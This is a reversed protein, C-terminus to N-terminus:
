YNETHLLKALLLRICDWVVLFSFGLFLGLAGGFEALFSTFPYTYVEEKVTIHTSAYSMSIQMLNETGLYMMSKDGVTIAAYEMYTCPIKCGTRYLLQKQQSNSLQLFFDLYETIQDLGVCTNKTETVHDWPALCGVEKLVSKKVCERFNYGSDEECPADHRNMRKHSVVKIYQKEYLVTKEKQKPFKFLKEFLPITLPYSSIYFFKPDHVYVRYPLSFNLLLDISGDSIFASKITHCKGFPWVLIDTSLTGVDEYEKAKHIIESANYFIRQFCEEIDIANEAYECLKKLSSATTDNPSYIPRMKTSYFVEVCITVSPSQLDMEIETSSEKIMVSRSIFSKMSPYGFLFFFLTFLIIYFCVYFLQRTHMM